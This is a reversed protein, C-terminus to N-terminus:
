ILCQNRPNWQGGQIPEKMKETMSDDRSEHDVHREMYTVLDLWGNDDPSPMCTTEHYLENQHTIRDPIELKDGGLWAMYTNM